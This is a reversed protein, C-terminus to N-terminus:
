EEEREGQTVFEYVLVPIGCLLLSPIRNGTIDFKGTTLIPKTFDMGLDRTNPTILRVGELNLIGGFSAVVADAIYYKKKDSDYPHVVVLYESRTESM